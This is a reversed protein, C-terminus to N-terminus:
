AYGGPEWNGGSTSALPLPAGQQFTWAMVCAALGVLVAWLIRLRVGRTFIWLRPEIHM